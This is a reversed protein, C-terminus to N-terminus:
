NKKDLSMPKLNKKLETIYDILRTLEDPVGGGYINISKLTDNKSINLNYGDGDTAHSVYSTDLASLNM